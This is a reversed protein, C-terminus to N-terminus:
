PQQEGQVQRHDNALVALNVLIGESDHVFELAVLLVVEQVTGLMPRHPETAGELVMHVICFISRAVSSIRSRFGQYLVLIRSKSGEFDDMCNGLRVM